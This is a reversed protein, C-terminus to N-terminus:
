PAEPVFHYVVSKGLVPNLLRELTRTLPPAKLLDWLLLKHWLRVPWAGSAAEDGGFLCRLWWYPV